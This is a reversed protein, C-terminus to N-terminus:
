HTEKALIRLKHLMKNGPNRDTGTLILENRLNFIRGYAKTEACIPSINKLAKAIRKRSKELSDLPNKITFLQFISFSEKEKEKLFMEYEHLDHNLTTKLKGTILQQVQSDRLICSKKSIRWFNKFQKKAGFEGNLAEVLNFLAKMRKLAVRLDHVGDPDNHELALKFNQNITERQLQFYGLLKDQFM